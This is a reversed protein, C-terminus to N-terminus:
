LACYITTMASDNPNYEPRPGNFDDSSVKVDRAKDIRFLKWGVPNGSESFGSIQFARLLENGAKSVGYCHPEVIRTGGNYYFELCFKHKIAHCITSDM